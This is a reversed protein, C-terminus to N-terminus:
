TLRAVWPRRYALLPIMLVLAVVVIMLSDRLFHAALLRLFPGTLVAEEAGASTGGRM